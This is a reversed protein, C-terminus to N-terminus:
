PSDIGFPNGAGDWGIVFVGDMIGDQTKWRAPQGDNAWNPFAAIMAICNFQQSRRYRVYDKFGAAPGLRPM